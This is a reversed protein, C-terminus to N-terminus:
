HNGTPSESDWGNRVQTQEAGILCSPSPAYLRHRLVTGWFLPLGRGYQFMLNREIGRRFSWGLSPFANTTISELNSTNNCLPFVPSWRRLPPSNVLVGRTLERLVIM